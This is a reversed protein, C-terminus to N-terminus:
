ANTKALRIKKHHHLSIINKNNHRIIRSVDVVVHLNLVFQGANKAITGDQFDHATRHAHTRRNAAFENCSVHLFYKVFALIQCCVASSHRVLAYTCTIIASRHEVHCYM